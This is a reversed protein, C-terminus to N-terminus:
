ANTQYTITARLYTFNQMPVYYPGTSTNTYYGRFHIHSNSGQIIAAVQTVGSPYATSHTNVQYTGVAEASSSCAFPLGLVHAAGSGTHATNYIVCTVTVLNGIKTYVGIPATGYSTTGGNGNAGKISPTWTGEEYDDLKNSRSDFRIGGSLYLDKFRLDPQGLDETGNSPSGGLCPLVGNENFYVGSTSGSGSVYFDAGSSASGISGVNAGAKGFWILDGDSTLRNLALAETGDATFQAGSGGGILRSGATNISTVSKGVLLDGDYTIRMREASTSGSDGNGSEGTYFVLSGYGHGSGAASSITEVGVAAVERGAGWYGHNFSLMKSVGNGNRNTGGFNLYNQPANAGLAPRFAYLPSGTDPSLGTPSGAYNFGFGGDSSIRMRETPAQAGSATTAFMLRGPTDNLAPAGDIQSQIQAGSSNMNTGDAATFNIQGLTDDNAVITYTGATNSRGSGFNLYSGNSNNSFGVINVTAGHYDATGQGVVQLAANHGGAGVSDTYGILVRQQDDIRMAESLNNTEFSMSDDSNNYIIRGRSFDSQDGFVVASGGTDSSQITMATNSTNSNLTLLNNPSGTGIGVLGTASIRMRQQISTPTGTNFALGAAGATGEARGIIRVATGADNSDKHAMAIEGIVNNEALSTSDRELTLKPSTPHMSHIISTPSATGIGVNNDDSFTVASLGTATGTGSNYFKLDGAANVGVGWGETGSNEEINLAIADNSGATKLRLTAAVSTGVSGLSLSEASADWFFKPTTGTDEYFSIDGNRDINLRDRLTGTAALGDNTRIVLKHDNTAGNFSALAVDAIESMVGYSNTSSDVSRLQLKAFDDGSSVTNSGNSFVANGDVTLGDSTITGTIDVGTSTTAIKQENDYYMSAAGDAIGVFMNEGTYKQLKIQSSARIQLNGTGADDIFSNTGSHYIQLDSGSGFIAKDDDGFSLNGTMTDGAPSVGMQIITNDTQKSYIKQDELNLALEGPAIDASVPVSSAVSSKKHIIKTAM